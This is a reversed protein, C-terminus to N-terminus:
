NCSAKSFIKNCVKENVTSHKSFVIHKNFAPRSANVSTQVNKKLNQHVITQIFHLTLSHIYRLKYKAFTFYCSFPM